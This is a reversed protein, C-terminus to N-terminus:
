KEKTKSIKKLLEQPTMGAQLQNTITRFALGAAPDAFMM